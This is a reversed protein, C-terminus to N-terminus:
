PRGRADARCAGPSVTRFTLTPAHGGSLVEHVKVHVRLVGHEVPGRPQVVEEVLDLPLPHGSDGHGVVAVEVPSVVEVLTGSRTPEDRDDSELAVVGRLTPELPPGEIEAATEVLRGRVVGAGPAAFLAVGVHRQPRLVRGAHVVEEPERGEGTELPVVELRAEVTLEQLLVAGPEDAGCPAGAALDVPPQLRAVVVARELRGSVHAVDEAGAVVEALDHVMPQGDLAPEALVEQADRPAELEREDGGVVEVVHMGRIGLRVVDQEADAGAGRHVIRLAEPEVGTVEVDLAGLLHPM